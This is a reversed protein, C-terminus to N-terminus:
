CIILEKGLFVSFMRAYKRLKNIDMPMYEGTKNNRMVFVDPLEIGERDRWRLYNQAYNTQRNFDEDDVKLNLLDIGLHAYELIIVGM